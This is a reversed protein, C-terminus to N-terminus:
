SYKDLWNKATTPYIANLFDQMAQDNSPQNKVTKLLRRQKRLKTNAKAIDLDKSSHQKKCNSSM